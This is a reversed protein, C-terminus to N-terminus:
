VIQGNTIHGHWHGAESADLSPTVSMTEFYRNGDKLAWGVTPKCLVYPQDGFARDAAEMQVELPTPVTTCTLWISQCHPCRFAFTTGSFWWAKLETLKM